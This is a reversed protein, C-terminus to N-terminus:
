DARRRLSEARHGGFRRLAIRGRLEFAAPRHAHREQLRLIRLPTRAAERDLLDASVTSVGRSELWRRASPDSFRSVAIVELRQGAREAARKALVALTPGMKGCAGLILLPSSVSRIFDVLEPRPQTLWDELENEDRLVSPSPPFM